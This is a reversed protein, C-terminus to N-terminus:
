KLLSFFDIVILFFLFGQKRRICLNLEKFSYDPCQCGKVKINKLLNSISLWHRMGDIVLFTMEYENIKLCCGSLARLYLIKM